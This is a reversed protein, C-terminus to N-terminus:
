DAEVGESDLQRSINFVPFFYSFYRFFHTEQFVTPTWHDHLMVEMIEEKSTEFTAAFTKWHEKKTKWGGKEHLFSATADGLMWISLFMYSLVSFLLNLESLQKQLM